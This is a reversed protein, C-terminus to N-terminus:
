HATHAQYISSITTSTRGVRDALLVLKPHDQPFNLGYYAYLIIRSASTEELLDTLVPTIKKNLATDRFLETLRINYAQLGAVLMGWIPEDEWMVAHGFAGNRIELAFAQFRQKALWPLGGDMILVFLAVALSLAITIAYSGTIAVLLWPPGYIYWRKWFPTRETCKKLVDRRRALESFAANLVENRYDHWILPAASPNGGPTDSERNRDDIHM